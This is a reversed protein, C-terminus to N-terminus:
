RVPRAAFQWQEDFFGASVPERYPRKLMAWAGLRSFLLDNLSALEQEGFTHCSNLVAYRGASQSITLLSDIAAVNDSGCLATEEERLGV